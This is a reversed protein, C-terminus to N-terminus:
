EMRKVTKRVEHFIAKCFTLQAPFLKEIEKEFSVLKDLHEQIEKEFEKKSKFDDFEEERAYTPLKLPLATELFENRAELKKRLTKRDSFMRWGSIEMYMTYVGILVTYFKWFDQENNLSYLNGLEEKMRSKLLFGILSPVRSEIKSLRYVPYLSDRPYRKEIGKREILSDLRMYFGRNDKYQISNEKLNKRIEGATSDQHLALFRKILQDASGEESEKVVRNVM